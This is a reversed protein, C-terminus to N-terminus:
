LTVRPHVFYVRDEPSAQNGVDVHLVVEFAEGGVVEPVSSLDLQLFDSVGDGIASEVGGVVVNNVEVLVKVTTECPQNPDGSPPCHIGTLVKATMAEEPTLPLFPFRGEIAGGTGLSPTTNLINTKDWGDINLLPIQSVGPKSGVNCQLPINLGAGGWWAVGPMPCLLYLDRYLM